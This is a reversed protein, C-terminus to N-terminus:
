NWVCYDEDPQPNIIEEISPGGPFLPSHPKHDLGPQLARQLRPDMGVYEAVPSQKHQLPFLHHIGYRLADGLGDIHCYKQESYKVLKKRTSDEYHYTNLAEILMTETEPVVLGGRNIFSNASNDTDAILPNSNRSNVIVFGYNELITRDTIGFPSTTDRNVQSGSMDIISSINRRPFDERIAKALQETGCDPIGYAKLIEIKDNYVQAIISCQKRKNFDAFHYLDGGRDFTPAVYKHADWTYFFQDEVSEWLCLYDQGFKLPSLLRQQQEIFARNGARMQLYNYHRVVFKDPQSLGQKFLDYLPGAGKPTSIVILRGETDPRGPIPRLRNLIEQLSEESYLAAEDAVWIGANLGRLNEKMEASKCRIFVGSPFKITLESNNIDRGDVLGYHNICTRKLQEWVLSKIMQTTPASYIVDKSKHYREDSAFLPLAVAALFTKGSGAPVIDLCHKETSLWDNLLTAQEGYLTIDINRTTM